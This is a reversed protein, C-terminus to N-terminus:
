HFRELPCKLMLSGNDVLYIWLHPNNNWYVKFAKQKGEGKNNGCMIHLLIFIPRSEIVVSKQLIRVDFSSWQFFTVSQEKIYESWWGVENGREELRTQHEQLCM